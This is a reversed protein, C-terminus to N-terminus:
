RPMPVRRRRLGVILAVMAGVIAAAWSVSSLGFDTTETVPVTSTPPITATVPITRFNAVRITVGTAWDDLDFTVRRAGVDVAPHIDATETDGDGVAWGFRYGPPVSQITLAVPGSEVLWRYGRYVTCTNTTADCTGDEIVEAAGIEQVGDPGEVSAQLDFLLPQPDYAFGAPAPDVTGTRAAPTCPDPQHAPDFDAPDQVSAPCVEVRLTVRKPDAASVPGTSLIVFIPLLVFAGALGSNRVISRTM